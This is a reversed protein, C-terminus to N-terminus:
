ENDAGARSQTNLLTDINAPETWFLTDDGLIKEVLKLQRAAQGIREASAQSVRYDQVEGLWQTLLTPEFQSM